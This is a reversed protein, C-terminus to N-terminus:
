RHRSRRDIPEAAQEENWELHFRHLLHQAAPALLVAVMTLFFVGSFLAYVIAFLKGAPTTMDQVPGMGTLIMAANLTADLWPLGALEHYGIAGLALAFLILAAVVSANRALRSVLRRRMAHKVAHSVRATYRAQSRSNTIAGWRVTTRTGDRHSSLPAQRRGRSAANNRGREAQACESYEQTGEDDAKEDARRRHKRTRYAGATEEQQQWVHGTALRRLQRVVILGQVRAADVEPRTTVFPFVFIEHNWACWREDKASGVEGSVLVREREADPRRMVAFLVNPAVALLKLPGFDNQGRARPNTEAARGSSRGEV